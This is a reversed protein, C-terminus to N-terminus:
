EGIRAVSVVSNNKPDIAELRRNKLVQLDLSDINPPKNEFESNKEFDKSTMTGKQKQFIFMVNVLSM